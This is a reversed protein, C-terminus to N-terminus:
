IMYIRVRERCSARGIEAALNTNGATQHLFALERYHAPDEAHIARRLEARAIQETIPLEEAENNLLRIGEGTIAFGMQFNEGPFRLLQLLKEKEFEGARLSAMTILLVLVFRITGM